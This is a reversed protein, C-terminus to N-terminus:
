GKPALDQFYSIANHIIIMVYMANPTQLESGSIVFNIFWYKKKGVACHQTQRKM